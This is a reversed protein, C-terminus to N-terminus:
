SWSISVSLCLRFNVVDLVNWGWWQLDTTFLTMKWFPLIRKKINFGARGTLGWQWGHKGQMKQQLPRPDAWQGMISMGFDWFLRNGWHQSWARDQGILGHQIFTTTWDTAQRLFEGTNCAATVGNQPHLVVTAQHAHWCGRTWCWGCAYDTRYM